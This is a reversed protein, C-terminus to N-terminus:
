GAFAFDNIDIPYQYRLGLGFHGHGCDLMFNLHSVKGAM